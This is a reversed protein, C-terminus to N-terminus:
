AQSPGENCVGSSISMLRQLVRCQPYSNFQAQRLDNRRCTRWNMFYPGTERLESFPRMAVWAQNTHMQGRAKCGNHADLRELQFFCVARRM